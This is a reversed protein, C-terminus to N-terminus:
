PILPRSKIERSSTRSPKPSATRRSCRLKPAFSNLCGVSTTGKEEPIRGFRPRFPSIGGFSGGIMGSSISLDLQAQRIKCLWGDGCALEPIGLSQRWDTRVIAGTDGTNVTTDGPGTVLTQQTACSVTGMAYACQSTGTDSGGGSATGAYGPAVGGGTPNGNNSLSGDGHTVVGSGCGEDGGEGGCALGLGSPDAETVPNQAGYSYGNLTQQKDLELLPDVSIFQGTTPDYERAGIHTLGTTTDVPKGLFRKDDPWVGITAGRSAGFPTTYRKTIAWTTADLALSATGHPDGALFCLKTGTVGKTATRVAITKGGATYYRTGSLTTATGKTTLRVETDGLYLITDGDGVARRILLEGNADYLYDTKKTGETLSALKGESNWALNQTTTGPRQTTNGTDDYTYTANKAGTTHDM